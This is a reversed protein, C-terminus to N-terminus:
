RVLRSNNTIGRQSSRTSYSSMLILAKIRFFIIMISPSISRAFRHSSFLFIHLPLSCLPFIFHTGKNQSKIRASNSLSLSFSLSVIPFSFYICRSLASFYSILARIRFSPFIFLLDKSFNFYFICHFPLSLSNNKNFAKMIKAFLWQSTQFLSLLSPSIFLLHCYATFLFLSPLNKTLAKM